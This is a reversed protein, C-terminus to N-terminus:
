HMKNSCYNHLMVLVKCSSTQVYIIIDRQIRRLILFIECLPQLSFWFVNQTWYNKEGSFWAKQSIIHFLKCRISLGCIAKYYPVSFIRNGHRIVLALISACGYYVISIAHGCCCHIRSNAETNHKYTRQRHQQGPTWGAEQVVPVPDREPPKFRGPRPTSLENGDLM